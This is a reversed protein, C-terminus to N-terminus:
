FENRVSQHYYNSNSLRIELIQDNSETISTDNGSDIIVCMFYEEGRFSLEEYIVKDNLECRNRPRHIRSNIVYCKKLHRLLLSNQPSPFINDVEDAKYASCLEENDLKMSIIRQLEHLPRTPSIVITNIKNEVLEFSEERYNNLTSHRKVNRTTEIARYIEDGNLQIQLATHTHGQTNNIKICWYPEEDRYLQKEVMVINAKECRLAPRQPTSSSPMKGCLDIYDDWVIFQCFPCSLIAFIILFKILHCSSQM